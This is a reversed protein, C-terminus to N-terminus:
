SDQARVLQAVGGTPSNPTCFYNKETGKCEWNV